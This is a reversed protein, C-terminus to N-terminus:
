TSMTPRSTQFIGDGREMDQMTMKAQQSALEVLQNALNNRRNQLATKRQQVFGMFDNRYQQRYRYLMMATPQDLGVVASSFSKAEQPSMGATAKALEPRAHIDAVAMMTLRSIEEAIIPAGLPYTSGLEIAVAHYVQWLADTIPNPNVRPFSVCARSYALRMHARMKEKLGPIM